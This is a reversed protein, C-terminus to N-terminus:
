CFSGEVETEPEERLDIPTLVEVNRNRWNGRLSNIFFEHINKCCKVTHRFITTRKSGAKRGLRHTISVTSGM